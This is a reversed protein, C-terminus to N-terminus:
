SVNMDGLKATGNKFLFVNASKLDRHMIKASHLTAMARLMMIAIRWIQSESFRTGKNKHSTVHQYLDKDNAYEMVLCLYHGEIFAEKYQIINPHDLAALIRVENLSNQREKKEM